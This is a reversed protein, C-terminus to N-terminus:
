PPRPSYFQFYYIHRLTLLFLHHFSFYFKLNLIVYCQVMQKTTVFTMVLFVASSAGDLRESEGSRREQGVREAFCCVREQEGEGIGCQLTPVFSGAPQHYETTHCIKDGSCAVAGGQSVRSGAGIGAKGDMKWDRTTFDKGGGLMVQIVDTEQVARLRHQNENGKTMVNLRPWTSQPGVWDHLESFAKWVHWGM